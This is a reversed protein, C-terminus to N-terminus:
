PTDRQDVVARIARFIHDELAQFGQLDKEYQQRLRRRDEDQRASAAEIQRDAADLDDQEERWDYYRDRVVTYLWRAAVLGLAAYLTIDLHILLWEVGGGILMAVILLVALGVVVGM